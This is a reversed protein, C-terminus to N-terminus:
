IRCRGCKFLFDFQFLWNLIEPSCLDYATNGARSEVRKSDFSLERIGEYLKTNTGRCYKVSNFSGSTEDPRVSCINGRESSVEGASLDGYSFEYIEAMSNVRQLEDIVLKEVVKRLYFQGSVVVWQGSFEGGAYAIGEKYLSYRGFMCGVAHSRAQLPVKRTFYSKGGREARFAKSKLLRIDM